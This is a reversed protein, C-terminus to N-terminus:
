AQRRLWRDLVFAGFPIVSAVLAALAHLVPWRHAMMVHLVALVFLITLVGHVAGVVSVAEPQGALYKLPMAIGLLILYSLGEVLSIIRLRGIPSTLV